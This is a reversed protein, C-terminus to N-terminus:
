SPAGTVADRKSSKNPVKEAALMAEHETLCQRFEIPYSNIMQMWVEQLGPVDINSEWDNLYALWVTEPILNRQYQVFAGYLQSMIALILQEFVVAEDPDLDSLDACGRRYIGPHQAILVYVGLEATMLSQETSGEISRSNQRIQLGLYVLSMIVAITGVIDSIGTAAEWEM